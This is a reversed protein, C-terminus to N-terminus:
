HGVVKLFLFLVLNKIIETMVKLKKLFKSFIVIIIEEIRSPGVILTKFRMEISDRINAKARSLNDVSKRDNRIYKIRVYLM